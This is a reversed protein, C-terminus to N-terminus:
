EDNLDIVEAMEKCHYCRGCSGVENDPTDIRANCCNSALDQNYEM